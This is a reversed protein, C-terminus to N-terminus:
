FVARCIIKGRYCRPFMELGVHRNAKWEGFLLGREIRIFERAVPFLVPEPHKPSLWRGGERWEAM